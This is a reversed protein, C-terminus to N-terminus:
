VTKHYYAAVLADVIALAEPGIKDKFQERLYLKLDEWDGDNTEKFREIAFVIAKTLDAYKDARKKEAVLQPRYKKYAGFFAGIAVSILAAYPTWAPVTTGVTEVTTQVTPALEAGKDLIEIAGDSLRTVETGDPKTITTCGTNFCFAGIAAFWVILIVWYWQKRIWNVIKKMKKREIFYLKKDKVM